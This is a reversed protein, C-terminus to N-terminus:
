LALLIAQRPISGLVKLDETQREGLQALLGICQKGACAWLMGNANHVHTSNPEIGQSLQLSSALLTGSM